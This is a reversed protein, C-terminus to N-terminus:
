YQSSGGSNTASPAKGRTKKKGVTLENNVSKVGKVSRAVKAARGEWRVDGVEGTLTVAGGHVETKIDVNKLMADAKLADEVQKGLASDDPAPMSSSDQAQDGNSQVDKAGMDGQKTPKDPDNKYGTTGSDQSNTGGAVALCPMLAMAIICLFKGIDFRKM